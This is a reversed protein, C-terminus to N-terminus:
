GDNMEAEDWLKLPNHFHNAARCRDSYRENEPSKDEFGSGEQFWEFTEKDFLLTATSNRFNAGLNRGLYNGYMASLASLEVAKETLKLHTMKNDYAHVSSFM